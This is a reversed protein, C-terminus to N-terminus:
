LAPAIRMSGGGEFCRMFGGKGEEGGEIGETGEMGEERGGKGKRGQGEKGEEVRGCLQFGTPPRSFRQLSGL